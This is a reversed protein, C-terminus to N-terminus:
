ARSVNLIADSNTLIHAQSAIIGKDEVGREEERKKKKLFFSFYSVDSVSKRLQKYLMSNVGHALGHAITLLFPRSVAESHGKMLIRVIKSVIKM